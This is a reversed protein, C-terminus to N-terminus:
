GKEAVLFGPLRSNDLALRLGMARLLFELGVEGFPNAGVGRPTFLLLGRQALPVASQELWLAYREGDGTGGGWDVVLASLATLPADDRGARLIRERYATPVAQPTDTLIGWVGGSLAADIYERVADWDAPAQAPKGGLSVTDFFRSELLHLWEYDRYVTQANEHCLLIQRHSALLHSDTHISTDSEGPETSFRVVSPLRRIIPIASQAHLRMEGTPAFYKFIMTKLPRYRVLLRQEVLNPQLYAALALDYMHHGLAEDLVEPPFHGHMPRTSAETLVIGAADVMVKIHAPGYEVGLATLVAFVYRVIHRMGPEISGVLWSSEYRSEGNSDTKATLVWLDTLMHRGLQSLTNVVYEQGHVYEQMMIGGSRETIGTQGLLRQAAEILQDSNHCIASGALPSSVLPKAVVPWHGVGQAFELAEKVNTVIRSHLHRIGSQSLRKQMEPKYRRLLSTAPANGPLGLHRALLDAPLGGMDSGSVVALVEYDRLLASDVIGDPADFYVPHYPAAWKVTEARLAQYGPSDPLQSFIAIPVFGLRRIERIYYRGGAVADFVVIAQQM